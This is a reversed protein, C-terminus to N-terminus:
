FNSSPIFTRQDLQFAPLIFSPPLLAKIPILPNDFPESKFTDLIILDKMEEEENSLMFSLWLGLYAYYQRITISIDV